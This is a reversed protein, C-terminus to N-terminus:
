TLYSELSEGLAGEIESRFENAHQVIVEDDDELLESLQAITEPVLALLQDKQAAWMSTLLQTATSRVVLSNTTRTASAKALLKSNFLKLTSEDNVNKLLGVIVPSLVAVFESAEVFKTRSNLLTMQELLPTIM